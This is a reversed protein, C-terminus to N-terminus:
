VSEFVSSLFVVLTVWPASMEKLCLLSSSEAWHYYKAQTPIGTLSLFNSSKLLLALSSSIIQSAVNCNHQQATLFCCLFVETAKGFPSMHSLLHLCINLIPLLYFKSSDWLWPHCIPRPSLLLSHSPLHVGSSYDTFSYSYLSVITPLFIFRLNTYKHKSGRAKYINLYLNSHRAVITCIILSIISVILPTPIKHSSHILLCKLLTIYKALYLFQLWM